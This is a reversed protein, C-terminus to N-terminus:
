GRMGYGDIARKFSGAADFELITGYTNALFETPVPFSVPEDDAGAPHHVWDGPKAVADHFAIQGSLVYVDAPGIYQRRPLTAGAEAKVLAAFAPRGDFVHLVKISSGDGFPRWELKASDVLHAWEDIKFGLNQVWDPLVNVDELFVNGVGFDGDSMGLGYTVDNFKTAPHIAGYPELVWCGPGASRGRLEISGDLVFLTSAKTHFHPPAHGKINTLGVRHGDPATLMKKRISFEPGREPRKASLDEWPAGALDMITRTTAAISKAVNTGGSM